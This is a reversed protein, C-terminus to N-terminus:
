RVCPRPRVPLGRIFSCARRCATRAAEGRVARQVDVHCLDQQRGPPCFARRGSGVTILPHKSLVEVMSAFHQAASIQRDVM